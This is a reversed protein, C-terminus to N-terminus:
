SKGCVVLRGTSPAQTGTLPGTMYLLLNEPGLPDVGPDILEYLLRSAYGSGGVFQSAIKMDLPIVSVTQETLDVDLIKGM